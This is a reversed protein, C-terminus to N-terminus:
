GKKSENVAGFRRKGQRRCADRKRKPKRRCTKLAKNLKEAKTLPKTAKVKPAERAEKANLEALTPYPILTPTVPVTFTAPFSGTTFSKEEGYSTGDQNTAVARYYYTTGPLLDNNFTAIIAEVSGSSSTATAPEVAGAYPTSGLEFQISTQLGRTDVTGTITASQQAVNEASGTTVLPPTPPLTTFTGDSSASSGLENTAILEYHYTTGPALEELTVSVPHPTYDSGELTTEYTNRGQAYPNSPGEGHELPTQYTAQSVYAFHYTTPLGQPTM